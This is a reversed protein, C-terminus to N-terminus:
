NTPQIYFYILASVLLTILLFIFIFIIFSINNTEFPDSMSPTSNLKIPTPAPSIKELLSEMPHFSLDDSERPILPQISKMDILKQCAPIENLQYLIKQLTFANSINSIDSNIDVDRSALYDNVLELCDKHTYRIDLLKKHIKERLKEKYEGLNNVNNEVFDINNGDILSILKMNDFGNPKVCTKMNCIQMSGLNKIPYLNKKSLSKVNNGLYGSNPGVFGSKNWIKVRLGMPIEMFSPTFEFLKIESEDYNGKRLEFNSGEEGEQTYFKVTLEECLLNEANWKYGEDSTCEQKEFPPPTENLNDHNASANNHAKEIPDPIPEEPAIPPLIGELTNQARQRKIFNLFDRKTLNGNKEIELKKMKKKRLPCDRCCEDDCGFVTSSGNKNVVKGCFTSQDNYNKVCSCNDCSNM